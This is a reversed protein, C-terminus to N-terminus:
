GELNGLVFARKTRYVTSTGADAYSAIETDPKGADAALLIKARKFKQAASQGKSLMGKLEAREDDTLKVRYTVNMSASSRPVVGRDIPSEACFKVALCPWDRAKM